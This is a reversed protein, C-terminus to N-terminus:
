AIPAAGGGAALGFHQNEDPTREYMTRVLRAAEVAGGGPVPAVFSSDLPDTLELTWPQELAAFAKLSALFGAWEAREEEAGQAHEAGGPALSPTRGLQDALQLPPTPAPPRAAPGSLHRRRPCTHALEVFATWLGGLLSCCRM